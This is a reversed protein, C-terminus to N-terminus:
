RRFLLHKFIKWFKFECARADFRVNKPKVVNKDVVYVIWSCSRKVRICDFAWKLKVVETFYVSRKNILSANLPESVGHKKFNERYRM